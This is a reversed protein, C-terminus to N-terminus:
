YKYHVEAPDGKGIFSDDKKHLLFFVYDANKYCVDFSVLNEHSNNIITNLVVKKKFKFYIVLHVSMTRIHM